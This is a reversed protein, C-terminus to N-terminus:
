GGSTPQVDMATIVAFRTHRQESHGAPGAYEVIGAVRKAVDALAAGAVAVGDVVRREGPQWVDPYPSRYVCLRLAPGAPLVPATGRSGAAPGGRGPTAVLALMDKWADCDALVAAESRTQVGRRTSVATWAVRQYARAVEPRTAGCSDTPTAVALMEGHETEVEVVDPDVGVGACAGSAPPESPLQLTEVLAEATPGIARESRLMQWEGDGPVLERRGYCRHVAVVVVDRRL